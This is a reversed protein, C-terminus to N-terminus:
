EEQEACMVALTETLGDTFSRNQYNFDSEAAGTDYRVVVPTLLPVVVTKREALDRMTKLFRYLSVPPTVLNYAKGITTESQLAAVVAKAVDAAHVWPIKVTVAFTLRKKLKMFLRKSAKYDRGGYIPGPRLTTLAIGFREAWYFAATEGLRKTQSYNYDTTARSLAWRNTAKANLPTHNEDMATFFRTHYVSVSSISIIRKVHQEHAAKFTNTVGVCNIQRFEEIPHNENGGLAANAVLADLGVFARSLAQEDSIDAIRVSAGLDELNSSKKPNRIIAVVQYGAALLAEVIYFGLFGSAGTVGIVMQEKDKMM